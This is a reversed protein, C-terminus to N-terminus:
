PNIKWITTEGHGPPKTVRLRLFPPKNPTYGRNDRRYVRKLKIPERRAFLGGSRCLENETGDGFVGRTIAGFWLGYIFQRRFIVTDSTKQTCYCTQNSSLVSAIIPSSSSKPRFAISVARNSYANSFPCPKHHPPRVPTPFCLFPCGSVDLNKRNEFARRDFHVPPLSSIHFIALKNPRKANHGSSRGAM